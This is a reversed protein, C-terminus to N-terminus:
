QKIKKNEIDEQMTLSMEGLWSASLLSRLAAGGDNSVPAWITFIRKLQNIENQLRRYEEALKGVIPLGDLEGGNMVIAGDKVSVKSSGVTVRVEDADSCRIVCLKGAGDVEGVVVNSGVKPYIMIGNNNLSVANLCIGETPQEDDVTLLVSCLAKDADVEKVVGSMLPYRLAGDDVISKIQEAIESYVDM